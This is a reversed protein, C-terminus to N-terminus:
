FFEHFSSETRYLFIKNDKVIRKNDIISKQRILLRLRAM